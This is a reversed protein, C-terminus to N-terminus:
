QRQENLYRKIRMVERHADVLPQPLDSGAISLHQAMVRRVYGDSLQERTVRNRQRTAAQRVPNARQRALVEPKTYYRRQSAKKREPHREVYARKKAAVAEPNAQSWETVRAIVRERNAEYWQRHHQHACDKCRWALGDKARSDKSFATVPKAQQCSPCPKM